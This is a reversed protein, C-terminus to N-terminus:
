MYPSINRREFINQLTKSYIQMKIHTDSHACKVGLHLHSCNNNTPLTIVHRVLLLLELWKSVLSTSVETITCLVYYTSRVYCEHQM